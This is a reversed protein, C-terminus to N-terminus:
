LISYTVSRVEYSGFQNHTLINRTIQVNVAIKSHSVYPLVNSRDFITLHSNPVHFAYYCRSVKAPPAPPNTEEFELTLEDIVRLILKGLTNKGTGFCGVCDVDPM